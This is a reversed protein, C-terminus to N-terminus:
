RGLARGNVLCPTPPTLDLYSLLQLVCATELNKIQIKIYTYSYPKVDTDNQCNIQFFFLFLTIPGKQKDRKNINSVKATNKSPTPLTDRDAFNLLDTFVFSM